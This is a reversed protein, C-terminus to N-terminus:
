HNVREAVYKSGELYSILEDVRNEPYNARLVSAHNERIDKLIEEIKEVIDKQHEKPTM